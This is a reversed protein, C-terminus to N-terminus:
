VFNQNIDFILALAVDFGNPLDKILELLVAEKCIQFFTSKILILDLVKTIDDRSM